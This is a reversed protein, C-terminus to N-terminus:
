LIRIVLSIDFYIVMQRFMPSQMQQRMEPTIMTSLQPNSQIMQDMIQPNSLMQSMTQLFMPDNLMAPDMAGLGPMGAGMGTPGMGSFMNMGGGFMDFPQQQQSPASTSAATPTVTAAPTAAPPEAKKQQGRVLHITNGESIKCEEISQENKLVKGAFILRYSDIGSDGLKTKIQEKLEAVTSSQSTEQEFAAENSTKIKIKM